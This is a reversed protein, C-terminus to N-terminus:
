SSFVDKKGVWKGESNRYGGDWNNKLFSRLNADPFHAADIPIGDDAWASSCMMFIMLLLVFLKKRM